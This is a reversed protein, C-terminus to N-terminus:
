EVQEIQGGQSNEQEGEFSGWAGWVLDVWKLAGEVWHTASLELEAQGGTGVSRPPGVFFAWVM